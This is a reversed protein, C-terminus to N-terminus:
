KRRRRLMAAAGLGLVAMTAPEPVAQASLGYVGYAYAYSGASNGYAFTSVDASATFYYTGASLIGTGDFSDNDTLFISNGFSDYLGVSSASWTGAQSRKGASASGDSWAVMNVSVNSTESLTFAITHSSYGYQFAYGGTVGSGGYTQSYGALYSGDNYVYGDSYNSAGSTAGGSFAGTSRYGPAFGSEWYSASAFGADSSYASSSASFYSDIITIPGAYSAAVMASLALSYLSRKM